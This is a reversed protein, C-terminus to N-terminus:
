VNIRARTRRIRYHKGNASEKGREADWRSVVLRSNPVCLKHWAPSGTGKMWKPQETYDLNSPPRPSVLCYHLKLTPFEDKHKGFIARLRESKSHAQKPDWGSYAKAEIFILHCEEHRKFAVLLDLDEQNGRVLNEDNAYVDKPDPNRWKTVAAALWDLHYDMWVRADAPITVGLKHGLSERFGESLEFKDMGLSHCLLFYREKRNFEDLLEILNHVSRPDSNTM